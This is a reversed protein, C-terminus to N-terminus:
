GSNDLRRALAAYGDYQSSLTGPKYARHDKTFRDACSEVFTAIEDCWTFWETNDIRHQAFKIHLSRELKRDGEMVALVDKIRLSLAVARQAPNVSTGIKVRDGVKIFYVWPVPKPLPAPAPTNEEVWEVFSNVNHRKAVHDVIEPTLKVGARVMQGLEMLANHSGSLGYYREMFYDIMPEMRTTERKPALNSVMAKGRSM